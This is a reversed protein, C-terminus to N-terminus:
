LRFFRIKGFPNVWSKPRHGESFISIEGVHPLPLPHPPAHPYLPGTEASLYDMCQNKDFREVVSFKSNKTDAVKKGWPPRQTVKYAFCVFFCVHYTYSDLLSGSFVQKCPNPLGWIPSTVHPPDGLRDHLCSWRGPTGWRWTFCGRFSSMFYAMYRPWLLCFRSIGFWSDFREDLWVAAQKASFIHLVRWTSLSFKTM